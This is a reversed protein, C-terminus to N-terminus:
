LHRVEAWLQAWPRTRGELLFIPTGQALNNVRVDNDLMGVRTVRDFAPALATPDGVLIVAGSDEPPVGFFAAGRSFSYSRLGPAFHQVASYSWYDGTVVVADREVDPPLARVAAEVDAVMQPWGIEDRQFAGIVLPQDAHVSV